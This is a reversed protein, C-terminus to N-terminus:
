TINNVLGKVEHQKYYTKRKKTNQCIMGKSNHKLSENNTAERGSDWSFKFLSSFRTLVSGSDILNGLFRAQFRNRIESTSNNPIPTYILFLFAFLTLCFLGTCEKYNLLSLVIRQLLNGEIWRFLVLNLLINLGSHLRCLPLWHQIYFQNYLENNKVNILTTQCVFNRYITQIKQM